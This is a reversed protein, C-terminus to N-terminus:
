PSGQLAREARRVAAVFREIRLPDKVGPESEVGSSVDVAYPRVRAIAEEVNDPDLGGALVLPGERALVSAKEWDPAVGRGGRGAGEFLVAAGGERRLRRVEELAHPGDHVVPLLEMGARHVGEGPESQIAHPTFARLVEDIDGARPHHFVAIRVVFPPLLSALARATEPDVRRPSEAFVFGLADAGAATAATVGEPTTMGCIKVRVRM